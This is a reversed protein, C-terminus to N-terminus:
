KSNNKVVNKLGALKAMDTISVYVSAFTEEINSRVDQLVQKVSGIIQFAKLIDCGSGELTLSLRHNFGFFYKM